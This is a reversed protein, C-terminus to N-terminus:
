KEYLYTAFKRDVSSDLLVAYDYIKSFGCAEHVAISPANEKSIHSYIKVAGLKAQVGSILEKAYGKGRHAPSTELATLLLGNRWSELRLASVYRSDRCLYWVRGGAPFFVERLYAYMEQEANALQVGAPEEPWLAAGSEQNSQSYVEMLQGFALQHMSTAVEIMKEGLFNSL